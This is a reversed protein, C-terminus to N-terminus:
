KRFRCGDCTKKTDCRTIDLKQKKFFLERYIESFVEKQTELGQFKLHFNNRLEIYQKEVFSYVEPYVRSYVFQPM